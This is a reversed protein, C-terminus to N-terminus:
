QPRPPRSVPLKAGAKWETGPMQNLDLSHAGEVSAHNQQIWYLIKQAALRMPQSGEHEERFLAADARGDGELVMLDKLQSYSMRWARATYSVLTHKDTPTSGEAVANGVALLEAHGGNTAPGGLASPRGPGAMDVVTLHDSHLVVANPGLVRPSDSELTALWTQVPAYAARVQEHFTTEKRLVNGTISGLYTLHLCMLQSSRAAAPPPAIGRPASAAPGAPPPSAAAGAPPPRAIGPAGRRVSILWGPGGADLRGNVLNVALEPVQMRDYATQQDGEFVRNETFVGGGCAITEVQPQQQPRPETLAVPHQFTVEMVQTHLQQSPGTATVEDEFRTKVGDFDMRRRWDVRLPVARPLPRGNLDKDMPVLMWGPGEVWVHNQGRQVHINPGTLSIGRGEFHAGAGAPGASSAGTVLATAGPLNAETLDLREGTILM